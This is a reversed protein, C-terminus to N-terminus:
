IFGKDLMEDLWERLEVLESDSMPYLGAPKPLPKDPIFDIAMDYERHPPLKNAGEKSFVDLYDHYEIPVIEEVPRKDKVHKSAIDASINKPRPERDEEIANILEELDEDDYAGAHIPPLM